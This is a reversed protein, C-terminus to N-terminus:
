PAAVAVPTAVFSLNFTISSVGVVGAAVDAPAMTTSTYEGANTLNIVVTYYYITGITLQAPAASTCGANTYIGGISLTAAAATAANIGAPMAGVTLSGTFGSYDITYVTTTTDETLPATNDPAIVKFAGKYVIGEGIEEFSATVTKLNPNGTIATSTKVVLGNCDSTIPGTIVSGATTYLDIVVYDDVPDTGPATISTSYAYAVGALAVACMMIAIVPVILKKKKGIM